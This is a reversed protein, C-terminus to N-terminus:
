NKWVWETSCWQGQNWDKGYKHIIIDHCRYERHPLYPAAATALAILSFLFACSALPCSKARDNVLSEEKGAVSVSSRFERWYFYRGLHFALLGVATRV